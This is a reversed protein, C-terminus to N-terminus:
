DYLDIRGKYNDFYDKFIKYKRNLKINSNEYMLKYIKYINNIKYVRLERINKNDGSNKVGISSRINYNEILIKQFSLCFEETAILSFRITNLKSIHVCGDGDFYGRLFSWLILVRCFNLRQRYKEM